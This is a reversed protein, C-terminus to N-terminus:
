RALVSGSKQLKDTLARVRARVEDASSGAVQIRLLAVGIEGAIIPAIEAEGDFAIVLRKGSHERTFAKLREGGNMHFRLWLQPGHYSGTEELGADAVDAASVIPIRDVVFARWGVCLDRRKQESYEYQKGIVWRAQKPLKVSALARALRDRTEAWAEAQLPKAIAYSVLCGDGAGCSLRETAIEVAQPLQGVRGLVDIDDIAELIEFPPPQASNPAQAAQPEIVVIAPTQAPPASHDCALAVLALGAWAFHRAV